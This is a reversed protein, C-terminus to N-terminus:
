LMYIKEVDSAWASYSRALTRSLSDQVLCRFHQDKAGRDEGEFIQQFPIDESYAEKLISMEDKDTGRRPDSSVPVSLEPLEDCVVSTLRIIKSNLRVVM